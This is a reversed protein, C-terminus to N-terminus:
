LGMSRSAMRTASSPRMATVEADLAMLSEWAQDGFGSWAGLVAPGECRGFTEDVCVDLWRQLGAADSVLHVDVASELGESHAFGGVPFLSDCLHLLALLPASM